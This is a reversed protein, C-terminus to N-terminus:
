SLKPLLEKYKEVKQGKTLEMYRPSPSPITVLKINPYKQLIKSFGMRFLKHAFHSTFFVTKLNKEKFIPVLEYANYSIKQLNDDLNTANKRECSAIVDGMAMKLKTFLEMKQQKTKLEVGYVGEMIPWFQNRKTGYYWDFTDSMDEGELPLRGPFSGLMLYETDEPIFAAFPHYELM